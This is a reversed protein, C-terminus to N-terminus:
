SLNIFYVNHEVQNTAHLKAGTVYNAAASYIQFFCLHFLLFSVFLTVLTRLDFFSLCCLPWFLLSLFVFLSRCFICMFSFISCRLGVLILLHVRTSRFSLHEQNLLPVGRAAQLKTGYKEIEIKCQYLLM